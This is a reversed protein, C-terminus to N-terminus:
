QRILLAECPLNFALKSVFTICGLDPCLLVGTIDWYKSGPAVQQIHCWLLPVVVDSPHGVSLFM